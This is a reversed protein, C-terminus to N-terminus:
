AEEQHYFYDFNTKFIQAGIREAKSSRVQDRLFILLDEFTSAPTPLDYEKLQALYEEWLGAYTRQDGEWGKPPREIGFAMLADYALNEGNVHDALFIDSCANAKALMSPSELDADLQLVILWSEELAMFLTALTRINLNAPNERVFDLFLFALRQRQHLLDELMFKYTDASFKKTITM